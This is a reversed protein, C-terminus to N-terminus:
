ALSGPSCYFGPHHKCRQVASPRQFLQVNSQAQVNSPTELFYLPKKPYTPFNDNVPPHEVSPPLDREEGQCKKEALQAHFQTKAFDLAALVIRPEFAQDEWVLAHHHRLVSTLNTGILIFIPIDYLPKVPDPDPFLPSVASPSSWMLFSPTFAFVLPCNTSWSGVGSMECEEQPGDVMILDQPIDAVSTQQLATELHVLADVEFCGLGYGSRCCYEAAKFDDSLLIPKKTTSDQHCDTYVLHPHPSPHPTSTFTSKTASRLAQVTPCDDEM